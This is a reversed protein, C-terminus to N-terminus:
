TDQQYEQKDDMSRFFKNDEHESSFQLSTYNIIEEKEEEINTLDASDQQKVMM